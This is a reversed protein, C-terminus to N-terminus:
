ECTCVKELVVAPGGPNLGVRISAEGRAFSWLKKGVLEYRWGNMCPLNKPPTKRDGAERCLEKIEDVRAILGPAIDADEALVELAMKVIPVRSKTRPGSKTEDKSDRPMRTEPIQAYEACLTVLEEAYRKVARDSVMRQNRLEQVSQPLIDALALVADDPLVHRRPIDREIATKERWTLLGLLATHKRLTMRSSSFMKSFRDLLDVQATWRARARAMEEEYYAMRGRRELEEKLWLYARVLYRVDNAAYQLQKKSLPRHLWNTVQQGKALRRGTVHKVLVHLGVHEPLGAFASALQTDFLNPMQAKCNRIMINLDTEGDHVIVVTNPNSLAEGLPSLDEIAVPDVLWIDTEDAIQILALRPYYTHEGIFETDVALAPVNQIREVLAHLAQPTDIYESM